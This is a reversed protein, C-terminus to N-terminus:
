IGAAASILELWESATSVAHCSAQQPLLPREDGDWPLADSIWTLHQKRSTVEASISSYARENLRGAIAFLGGSYNLSDCFEQSKYLEADEVDFVMDNKTPEFGTMWAPYEPDWRAKSFNFERVYAIRISSQRACAVLSMCKEAIAAAVVCKKTTLNEQCDVRNHLRAIVLIPSAQSGTRSFHLSSPSLMM